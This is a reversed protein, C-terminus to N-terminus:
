AQSDTSIETECNFNKDKMAYFQRCEVIRLECEKMTEADGIKGQVAVGLKDVCLRRTVDLVKEMITLANSVAPEIPEGSPLRYIKDVLLASFLDGVGTFYSDMYPIKFFNPKKSSKKTSSVCYFFDKNKTFSFTSIVVHMVNFDEHFVALAKDLDAPNNISFGVLLEAEYQNPTIIDVKKYSLIRRYAPIVDASVYLEGEDGMVPDLLWLIRPTRQKLDLCVKGMAEVGDAGQIYGTLMADYQVNIDQLGEYLSLVQEGTTTQGKFSGYGTHNSFNVTNLLDVDWYQCQLVFGAVKNGVYGHAVHSQISIIKNAPTVM